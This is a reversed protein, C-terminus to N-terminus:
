RIRCSCRSGQVKALVVHTGDTQRAIAPLPTTALDDWSTAVCGSKLGVHKAARVLANTTLTQGSLGFQHQIQGGDISVDHFRAVLLLCLLGTDPRSAASSRPDLHSTSVDM